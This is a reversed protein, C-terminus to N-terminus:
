YNVFGNESSSSHIASQINTYHLIMSDYGALGHGYVVYVGPYGGHLCYVYNIPLIFYYHNIHPPPPNPLLGLSLHLYNRQM